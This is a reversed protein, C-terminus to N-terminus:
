RADLRPDIVPFGSAFHYVVQGEGAELGLYGHVADDYFAGIGTSRFGCAESCVYFRQGIAGAQFHVYRYGRNGFLRAAGDLDGILSFAVCANGALQQGLSLGAMAVRQDGARVLELTHSSAHYRYVGAELGRVRHAYVYIRILRSEFDAAFGRRATELMAALDALRISEYGGVFDLASRRTRAVLGFPSLPRSGEPLAINGKGDEEAVREVAPAVSGERLKSAEHIEEISSYREVVASLRNAEGGLWEWGGARVGGGGPVRRLGVLLMPWEDELGCAAAVADDRFEGRATVECGLARASLELAQWAHGLDLLCYRYARNRYKWAERWHISALVFVVQAEPEMEALVRGRARLEAMHSSARYHYLGDEVGRLGRTVFHFETPHLNGSSANVRLAYRYGASPVVKSASVAAAHFLLRSLFVAGSSDESAPGPFGRLVESATVSPPEPDAPLDMLPVGEYHRFPDPMNEWDLTRQNAYVSEVTHKTAEHYAFLRTVDRNPDIVGAGPEPVDEEAAAPEAEVREYFSLCNDGQRVLRKRSLGGRTEGPEFRRDHQVVVLSPPDEGLLELAQSYEKELPYPPDLFVIDAQYRNVMLAAKGRIVQARARAQLTRLNEEILEAAAKNSELFVVRKAGRSLAEIGVAGTGAYADVFVCGEVRPYLINFLTERLRDPTPRVDMGEMSKLKRSRFEGGIVRM